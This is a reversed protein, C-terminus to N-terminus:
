EQHAARLLKQLVGRGVRRTLAAASCVEPLARAGPPLRPLGCRLPKTSVAGSSRILSRALTRTVAKQGGDWTDQRDGGLLGQAWTGTVPLGPGASPRGPM